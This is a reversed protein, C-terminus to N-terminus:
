CKVKRNSTVDDNGVHEPSTRSVLSVRFSVKRWGWQDRLELPLIGSEGPRGNSIDRERCPRHYTVLSPEM